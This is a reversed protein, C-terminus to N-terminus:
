ANLSISELPMWICIGTRSENLISVQFQKIFGLYDSYNGMHEPHRTNKNKVGDTVITIKFPRITPRNGGSQRVM